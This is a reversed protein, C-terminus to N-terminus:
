SGVARMANVDKTFVAATGQSRQSWRRLEYNEENGFHLPFNQIM